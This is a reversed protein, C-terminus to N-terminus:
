GELNRLPLLRRLRADRLFLGLWVLVGPIVTAFWADGVRVHTATAGGLYGTLLIAGLVSTQPVMYLITCVLEIVGLMFMQDETWGIHKLGEEMGPPKLFKMVASMLLMLVPVVSVVRGTWVMWM